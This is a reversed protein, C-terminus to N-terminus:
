EGETPCGLPHTQVTAPVGPVHTLSPLKHNDTDLPNVNLGAEGHSFDGDVSLLHTERKLIFHAFFFALRNFRPLHVALGSDRGTFISDRNIHRVAEFSKERQQVFDGAKGADSDM